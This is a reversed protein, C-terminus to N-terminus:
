PVADSAKTVIARTTVTYADSPERRRGHARDPKQKRAPTASSRRPKRRARLKKLAEGGGRRAGLLKGLHRLAHVRLGPLNRQRRSWSGRQLLIRGRPLGPDLCTTPEGRAAKRPFVARQSGWERYQIECLGSTERALPSEQALLSARIEQIGQPRPLAIRVLAGAGGSTVQDRASETKRAPGIRIRGAKPDMGTLIPPPAPTTDYGAVGGATRVKEEELLCDFLRHIGFSSLILGYWSSSGDQPPEDSDCRKLRNNREM